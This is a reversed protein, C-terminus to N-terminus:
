QNSGNNNNNNPNFSNPIVNNPNGQPTTPRYNNPLPNQQYINPQTRNTQNGFANPVINQNPMTAPRVPQQTRPPMSQRPQAPQPIITRPSINNNYGQQIPQRNNNYANAPNNYPTQPTIVPQNATATRNYVAQQQPQMIPRNPATPNVQRPYIGQPQISPNPNNHIYQNNNMGYQTQVNQPMAPIPQIPTRRYPNPLARKKTNAQNNVVPKDPYVNLPQTAPAGSEKVVEASREEAEKEEEKTLGSDKKSLVQPKNSKLNPTDANYEVRVHHPITLLMWIASVILFLALIAFTNSMIFTNVSGLADILATINFALGVYYVTNLGAFLLWFTSCFVLCTSAKNKHYPQKARFIQGLIYFLLSLVFLAIMAYGAYEFFDIELMQLLASLLFPVMVGLTGFICSLRFMTASKSPRAFFCVFYVLVCIGLIGVIGWTEFLEMFNATILSAIPAYLDWLMDIGFINSLFAPFYLVILFAALLLSLIGGIIYGVRVGQSEINKALKKGGM